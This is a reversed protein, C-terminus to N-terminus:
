ATKYHVIPIPKQAPNGKLLLWLSLLCGYSGGREIWEFIEYHPYLLESAIKWILFILVLSKVPKLLITIAAAIEFLGIILATHNPDGLGINSYQTLLSKKAIINLWGHGSLLLFCAIGLCIELSKFNAKAAESFKIRNFWYKFNFSGAGCLLLLAFPAGYNGAREIFEAFPEGSLPRLLATVLGWIVLWGAVARVPYILMTIGLLIDVTGLVPMLQFALTRGIGFIAFYNAWIPKTIIGFCGHGIFCMAVSIRLILYIKDEVSSKDM